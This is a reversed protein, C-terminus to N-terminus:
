KVQSRWRSLSTSSTWLRISSTASWCSIALSIESAMEFGTPNPCSTSSTRPKGAIFSSIQRRGMDFGKTSIVPTLLDNWYISSGLHTYHIFLKYAFSTIDMNTFSLLNANLNGARIWNQLSVSIVIRGYLAKYIPKRFFIKVCCVDLVYGALVLWFRIKKQKAAYSTKRILEEYIINLCFKHKATNLCQRHRHCTLTHITYTHTTPRGEPPTPPTPVPLEPRAAVPRQDM